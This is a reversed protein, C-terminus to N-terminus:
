VTVITNCIDINYSADEVTFLVTNSGINTQNFTKKSASFTVESCDDFSGNDLMSPTITKNGSANLALSIRKLADLPIFFLLDFKL